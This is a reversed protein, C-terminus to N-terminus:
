PIGHYHVIHPMYLEAYQWVRYTTSVPIFHALKNLHDV